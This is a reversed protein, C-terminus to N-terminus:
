GQTWLFEFTTCWLSTKKEGNREYFVVFRYWGRMIFLLPLYSSFHAPIWWTSCFEVIVTYSVHLQSNNLSAWEFWSLKKLFKRKFLLILHSIFNSFKIWAISFELKERFFYLYTRVIVWDKMFFIIRRSYSFAKPGFLWFLLM